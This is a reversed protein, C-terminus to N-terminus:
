IVIHIGPAGKMNVMGIAVLANTVASICSAGKMNVMGIAVLANTVASICSAGKMNVMGIAVLLLPMCNLWLIFVIRVILQAIKM